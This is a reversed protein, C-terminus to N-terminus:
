IEKWMLITILWDILWDILWGVLSDILCCCYCCSCYCCCCLCCRGGGVQTHVRTTYHLRQLLAAATRVDDGREWMGGSLVSLPTRGNLCFFLNYLLREFYEGQTRNMVFSTLPSVARPSLRHFSSSLLSPFSPFIFPSKKLSLLNFNSQSKFFYILFRSYFKCLFCMGFYTMMMLNFSFGTNFGVDMIVM